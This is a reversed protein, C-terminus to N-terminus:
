QVSWVSWSSERRRVVLWLAFLILFVQSLAGANIEPVSSAEPVYAFVRYAFAQSLNEPTRSLVFNTETYRIETGTSYAFILEDTGSTISAIEATGVQSKYANAFDFAQSRNGWWPATATNNLLSLNDNYSGGTFQIDYSIGNVIVNAALAPGLTIM